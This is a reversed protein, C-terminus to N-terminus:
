AAAREEYALLSLFREACAEWSFTLAFERCTAPDAKLANEAAVKLDEHICGVPADGIIDRPGLVPYAAVPVGSALAELAVLGYTDTRSPFVFADSAAYYGALEEGFKPGTFHVSPYASKLTELLPGDGVVLKSGPLDLDLFASINKEVSVRGVYLWIPRPLQLWDKPRPRFLDVDVGRPWLQINRFGRMGLENRLAETTVMLTESREHFRRIIPYIWDAPLYTRAEVYEPFRTHFSSTFRRGMKTCYRRAAWGIPGETVIHIADPQYDEIVQATVRAPNTAIKIEPYTPLPVTKFLSPELFEVEHGLKRVEKALVSLTRVVGNIQPEWADTAILVRKNTRQTSYSINASRKETDGRDQNSLVHVTM